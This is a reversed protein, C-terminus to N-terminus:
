PKVEPKQEPEQEPPAEGFLEEYEDPYDAAFGEKTRLDLDYRIQNYIIVSDDSMRYYCWQDEEETSDLDGDISNIAAAAARDAVAEIAKKAAHLNNDLEEFNEDLFQQAITFDQWGDNPPEIPEDM